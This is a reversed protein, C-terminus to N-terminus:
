NKKIFELFHYYLFPLISLIPNLRSSEDGYYISNKIQSVKANLKISNIIIDQEFFYNKKIKNLKLKKLFVADFGLVGHCPDKIKWYGSSIKTLFTLSRAGLFRLLPMNLKKFNKFSLDRYGKCFDFDNKIIKKIIHKLISLDHQDDGDVKIVIDFKNKLAYKFGAITAGGVGQNTRNFIIKYKTLLKLKNRLFIGTKEPCCDDVIIIKDIKLLNKNMLVSLIKNKVNYCPIIVCTKIKM